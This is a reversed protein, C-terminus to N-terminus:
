YSVSIFTGNDQIRDPESVDGTANDAANLAMRGKTEEVMRLSAMATALRSNVVELEKWQGHPNTDSPTLSSRLILTLILTPTIFPDSEEGKQPGRRDRVRVRVM